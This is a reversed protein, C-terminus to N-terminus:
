LYWATLWSELPGIAMKDLVLFEESELQTGKDPLSAARSPSTPQWSFFFWFIHSCIVWLTPCALFWEFRGLSCGQGSTFDPMTLQNIAPGLHEFCVFVCALLKWCGRMKCAGWCGRARLCGVLLGLGMFFNNKLPHFFEVFTDCFYLLKRWFLYRIDVCLSVM